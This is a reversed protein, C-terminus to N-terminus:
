GKCLKVGKREQNLLDRLYYEAVIAPEMESLLYINYANVLDDYQEPKVVFMKMVHGLFDASHPLETQMVGELKANFRDLVVTEKLLNKALENRSYDAAYFAQQQGDNFQQM